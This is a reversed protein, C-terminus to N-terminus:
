TFFCPQRLSMDLREKVTPWDTTLLYDLMGNPIGARPSARGFPPPEVPLDDAPWCWRPMVPQGCALGASEVSTNYTSGSGSVQGDAWLSLVLIRSHARMAIRWRGGAIGDALEELTMPERGLFLQGNCLHLRQRPGGAPILWFPAPVIAARPHEAATENAGLASFLGPWVSLLRTMLDFDRGICISEAEWDELWLDPAIDLDQALRRLFEQNVRALVPCPSEGVDYPALWTPCQVLGYSAAIKRVVDRLQEGDIVSAYCPVGSRFEKNRFGYWAGRAPVPLFTRYCERNSKAADSSASLFLTISDPDICKLHRLALLKGLVKLPGGFLLPQDGAMYLRQRASLGFHGRIRIRAGSWLGSGIWRQYGIATNALSRTDSVLAM